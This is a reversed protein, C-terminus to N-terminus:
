LGWWCLLDKRTDKSISLFIWHFVSLFNLFKGGNHKKISLPFMWWKTQTALVKVILCPWSHRFGYFGPSHELGYPCILYTASLSYQALKGDWPGTYNMVIVVEAFADLTMLNHELLFIAFSKVWELVQSHYNHIM